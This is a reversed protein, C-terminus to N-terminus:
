RRWIGGRPRVDGAPSATSVTSCSRAERSWCTISPTSITAASGRWPLISRSCSTSLGADKRDGQLEVLVPVVDSGPEALRAALQRLLFTKGTGFDALVLLFRPQRDDTVLCWVEDLADPVQHGNRGVVHLGRQEIYLDQPYVPDNM